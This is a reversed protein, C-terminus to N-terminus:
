SRRKREGDTLEPPLPGRRVPAASPDLKALASKLKGIRPSTRSRDGAITDCLLQVVAALEEETLDEIAMPFINPHGLRSALRFDLADNAHRDVPV